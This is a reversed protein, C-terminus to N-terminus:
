IVLRDIKAAVIFDNRSLGGIKHTSLELRVKSYLIHIDPHHDERQAIAAVDNVFDMAEQFDDFQFERALSTEQLTWDRVQAHLETAEQQSLPAQSADIPGGREDALAM